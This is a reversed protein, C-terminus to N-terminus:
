KKTKNEYVQLRRSVTSQNTGTSEVIQTQTFGAQYMSVITEDNYTGKHTYKTSRKQEADTPMRFSRLTPTQHKKSNQPSMKSKTREVYVIKEQQKAWRIKLKFSTEVTFGLVRM